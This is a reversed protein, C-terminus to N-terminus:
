RGERFPTPDVGMEKHLTEGWATVWPSPNPSWHYQSFLEAEAEERSGATAAYGSVLLHLYHPNVGAKRAEKGAAKLAKDRAKMNGGVVRNGLLGSQNKQEAHFLAHASEHTILAEPSGCGEGFWLTDEGHKLEKRLDRKDVYITNGPKGPTSKVYAVTDPVWGPEKPDTVKLADVKFGYREGMLSAVQKAATTTSPAIGPAIAMQGPVQLQHIGGGTEPEHRVGWKMGKVGHHALDSMAMDYSDSPDKLQYEPGDYDNMWLAVRDFLVWNISYDRDLPKAPTEPYGLTLHPTWTPFQDTSNYATFIAQNTLLYRRVTELNKINFGPNKFFLVDANKPGLTGRRDVDLGFRYMSTEVVHALFEEIQPLAPNDSDGLMMLTLHPIKESSVKWVYDDQAPIAVIALDSVM